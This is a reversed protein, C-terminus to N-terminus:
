GHLELVDGDVVEHDRGVQQGEFGHGGYLRAYKLSAALDRHVLRAVDLVTDGRRVTYPKGGDVPQGPKKTYVRVITLRHFLFAGLEAIGDGTVASVSLVPCDLGTLEELVVLEERPHQVIDSKSAVLLTPLHLTFTDDDAGEGAAGDEPWMPSLYVNREALLDLAGLAEEVCGPRSVDVIFLCGDASQLANAIWPIPHEPSLPPLDVLQFSVDDHEFMGPQPYQTTFAYPEAAAHSGTLRDHLASKGTNPPGLLAVQAAGEPHVFTAPATRAGGKKPGALDASLEKIRTKLDAQLHDTGKHKPVVRLMERLLDLRTQPDRTKKFAAEAAKYEPSLNAPM